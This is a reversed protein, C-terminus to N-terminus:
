EGKISNIAGDNIASQLSIQVNMPLQNIDYVADTFAITYKGEYVNPREMMYSVHHLVDPNIYNQLTLEEVGLTQALVTIPIDIGVIVSGLRYQNKLWDTQIKSLMDPHLYVIDVAQPESVYANLMEDNPLTQIQYKELTTASFLPQTNSPTLYISTFNNPLTQPSPVATDADVNLRQFNNFAIVSSVSIILVLILRLINQSM